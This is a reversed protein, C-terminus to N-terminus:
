KDLLKYLEGLKPTLIIEIRRNRARAEPNKAADVPYYESKGAATIRTGSVGEMYFIRAISTARLASLDWNDQFGPVGKRMPVDDTHGEIMLDIEENQKLVEAITVEELALENRDEIQQFRPNYANRASAGPIWDTIDVRVPHRGTM